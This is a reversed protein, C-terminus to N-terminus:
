DSNPMHFPPLRPEVYALLTVSVAGAVLVGAITVRRIWQLKRAVARASEARGTAFFLLSEPGTSAIVGAIGDDHLVAPGAVLVSGGIPVVHKAIRRRADKGQLRVTVSSAWSADDPHVEFSTGARDVHFSGKSLVREVFINPDSGETVTEHVVHIVAALEGEARVPTPDRVTGEFSGWVRGATRPLPPADLLIGLLKASRRSTTLLAITLLLSLVGLAVCSGASGNVAPADAARSHWSAGLDAVFPPAWLMVVPVVAFALIRGFPDSTQVDEVEKQGQIFRPVHRAGWMALTIALAGIGGVLLDVTLPSFPVFAAVGLMSAAIAGGIVTGRPRLPRTPRLARRRQKRPSDNATLDAVIRDMTIPADPGSAIARATMSALKRTPASRHGTPESFAHEVHEALIEVRAGEELRERRIEVVVHPGPARSALEAITPDGMFSRWPGRRSTGPEIVTRSGLEVNVEDGSEDVQLVFPAFRETRAREIGDVLLTTRELLPGTAHAEERRRATGSFRLLAETSSSARARDNM